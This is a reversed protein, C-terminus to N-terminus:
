DIRLTDAQGSDRGTEIACRVQRLLDARSFPKFLVPSSELSYLLEPNSLATTFLVPVERLGRLSRVARAVGLGGSDPLMLDVVLVDPRLVRAAEVAAAGTAAQMVAFGAGSLCQAVVSRLEDDDEVILVKARAPGLQNSM